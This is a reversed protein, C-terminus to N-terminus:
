FRNTQKLFLQVAEFIDSNAQLSLTSNGYLLTDLTIACFRSVTQMLTIRQNNYNPCDLFFHKVTEINNCRCLPSDIINKMYLDYNLASCNTRLRTHLIQEKRNGFLYHKPVIPKDRSLVNKFAIVSDVNRRDDPINNWDRVVSPLFSNYYLATRANVLHINNSNRLNYNSSSDITAPVLDLLYQPSLGNIMKFFLTLKHNKRRTELTEWGTEEYLSNISVFKTTGTVIRAAEIQIKEIDQKEQQTCNDWVVDGYELIPRIFSFYITELSKRDLLFKFKRMINIRFWAKEKINEIQEHWTCDKSIHLGLHKHSTVETLQQNHMFIPPHIPVNVKRSILLSESKSPNFTVLWLKAWKAITELDINLLQATVDPHEM